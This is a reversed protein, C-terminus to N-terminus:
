AEVGQARRRELAERVTRLLLGEVDGHRRHTVNAGHLRYLAVVDDLRVGNVDSHSARAFWETDEGIPYSGDFRGVADFTRRWGVLTTLLGQLPDSLWADELWKPRATGPELFPQMRGLVFDVDRHELLHGVRVDLGGALWVDDSDLFAILEGSAADLAANRAPAIGEHPREVLRVPLSRAVDATGDTSGDDVVIVELPEYGQALVSEVAAPLYEATNYAPILVSLPPRKV